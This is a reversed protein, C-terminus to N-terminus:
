AEIGEWFSIPTAFMIGKKRGLGKTNNHVVEKAEELKEDRIVAMLTHSMPVENNVISSLKGFLPLEEEHNNELAHKLSTSDLVTGNMGHEKMAALVKMFESGDELTVFFLVM